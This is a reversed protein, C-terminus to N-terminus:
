QPSGSAVDSPVIVDGITSDATVVHQELMSRVAGLKEIDSFEFTKSGPTLVIAFAGRTNTVTEGGGHLTDGDNSKVTVKVGRVPKGACLVRGRVEFGKCLSVFVHRGESAEVEALTAQALGTKLPPIVHVTCRQAPLHWAEYFGGADTRAQVSANTDRDRIIVLANKVPRKDQDIVKGTIGIKSDQASVAAAFSFAVALWVLLAKKFM